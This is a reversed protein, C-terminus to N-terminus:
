FLDKLGLVALAMLGATILIIPAGQFPAPVPARELRAGIRGFVQLALEFLVGAAIGIMVAGAFDRVLTTNVLTAAFVTCTLLTRRRLADSLAPSMEIHSLLVRHAVQVLVAIALVCALKHLSTLRPSSLLLDRVVFTLLATVAICSGSFLVAYRGPTRADEPEGRAQTHLWHNLVLISLALALLASM